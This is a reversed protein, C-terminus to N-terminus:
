RRFKPHKTSQWLESMEKGRAFEKEFGDFDGRAILNKLEACRKEYSDMAALVAKRNHSLIEKWMRPSSAAVRVTDRFGSACGDFRLARDSEPVDLVSLALASSVVHPVHSTNAVLLDHEESSLRRPKAKVKRWLSELDELYEKRGIFQVSNHTEINQKKM